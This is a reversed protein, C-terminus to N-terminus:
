LDRVAGYRVPRRQLNGVGPIDKEHYRFPGDLYSKGLEQGDSRGERFFDSM